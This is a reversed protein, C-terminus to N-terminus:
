NRLSINDLWKKYFPKSKPYGFFMESKRKVMEVLEDKTSSPDIVIGFSKLYTILEDTSWSDLTKYWKEILQGKLVQSEKPIQELKKDVM